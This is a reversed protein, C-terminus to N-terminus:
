ILVNKKTQNISKYFHLLIPPFSIYLFAIIQLGDAYVFHFLAYIFPLLALMGILFITSYRLPFLFYYFYLYVSILTIPGILLLPIFPFFPTSLLAIAVSVSHLKILYNPLRIPFLMVIKFRELLPSILVITILVQLLGFTYLILGDFIYFNAADNLQLLAYMVTLLSQQYFFQSLLITLSLNAIHLIGMYYVHEFFSLRFKFLTAMGIGFLLSPILFFITSELANPVFLFTLFFSTVAYLLYTKVTTLFFVLVSLLPLFLSLPFGITPFATVLILFIINAAAMLAAFTLRQNVLLPHMIVIIYYPKAYSKKTYVFETKIAQVRNRVAFSQASRDPGVSSSTKDFALNGTHLIMLEM